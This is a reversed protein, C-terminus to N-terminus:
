HLFGAVVPRVPRDAVQAEIRARLACMRRELSAILALAQASPMLQDAVEDGCRARCVVLAHRGAEVEDLTAM